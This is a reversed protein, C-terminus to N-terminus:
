TVRAGLRRELFEGAFQATANMMERLRGLLHNYGVVAPIAAALGAVTAILAEAIGPAVVVLSASGQAGINLFASMVGWVTGMLGIFPSVSGATALFGVHRELATSEESASRDMARQAIEYRLTEPAGGAPNQDLARQGNIMVRALLSYPHQEVLLRFDAGPPLRRFHGLFARDEREVRRYLRIRSWIVAWSYVSIILLILLIAKAFPGASMVLAPVSARGGGALQLILGAVLMRKVSGTFAM